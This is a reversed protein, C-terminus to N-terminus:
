PIREPPPDTWAFRDFEYTSAIEGKGEIETAKFEVTCGAMLLIAFLVISIIITNKM